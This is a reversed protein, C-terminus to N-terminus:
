KNKIIQGPLSTQKIKDEYCFENCPHSCPCEGMGKVENSERRIKKASKIAIYFFFVYFITLFVLLFITYYSM